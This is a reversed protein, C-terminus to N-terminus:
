RRQHLPVRHTLVRLCEKTIRELHSRAPNAQALVEGASVLVMVAEGDGGFEEESTVMVAEGEGGFEVESTEPHELTSSNRRQRMTNQTTTAKMQTKMLKAKKITILQLMRLIGVGVRKM